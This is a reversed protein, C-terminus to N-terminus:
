EIVEDARALVNTPMTLDLAQATKLNVVLEYRTPQEVPLDAPKDGKLIREVYYAARRWNERVHIGYSMLGGAEAFERLGYMTPLQAAMALAAIRRRGTVFVADAFVIAFECRERALTAFAADIGDPSRVEVPVLDIGLVPAAAEADRRQIVNSPNLMNVLMGIRRVGPKVERALELQKGLLGEVTFLIGTVTGGPRNHSAVLGLGIPDALTASVIPVTPMARRAAVAAAAVATVVVDPKLSALEEALGPLRDAHGEAWRLDLILDRGEQYGLQGLGQRLAAVFAGHSDPSGTVLCGVRAVREARQAAAVAPLVAAGGLLTLFARRRM